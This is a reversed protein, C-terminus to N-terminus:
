PNKLIKIFNLDIHTNYFGAELNLLSANEDCIAIEINSLEFTNLKYYQINIPSENVALDMTKNKIYIVRNLSNSVLRPEIINIYIFEYFNNLDSLTENKKRLNSTILNVFYNVSIVLIKDRAVGLIKATPEDVRAMKMISEVTEFGYFEKYIAGLLKEIIMSLTYNYDSFFEVVPDNYKQPADNASKKLHNLSIKVTFGGSIPEPPHNTTDSPAPTTMQLNKNFKFKKGSLFRGFYKDNYLAHDPSNSCVIKIFEIESMPQKFASPATKSFRIIDNLPQQSESNPDTLKVPSHSLRSLGVFWDYKRSLECNVALHNTFTSLKNQPFLDMSGNSVLTITFNDERVM